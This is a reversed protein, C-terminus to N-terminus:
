LLVEKGIGFLYLYSEKVPLGTIREIAQKYIAIQIQYREKIKSITNETVYDTKYDLLVIKGQEYFFCDIMGHVLIKEKLDATKYEPYIDQPLLSLTFTKEKEIREAQRLRLALPSSFFTLIKNVSVSKMEQETLIGLSVFNKMEQIVKNRDYTEKFNLQEMVTHLATGKESATLSRDEKIFAPSKLDSEINEFSITEVVEQEQQFHRKIESISLNTPLNSAIEYPYRWHLRQFVEQKVDSYNPSSDWNELSNAITNELTKQEKKEMTIEHYPIIEVKWQSCHDFLGNKQNLQIEGVKDSILEGDRHRSVAPVIWDLYCSAKLMSYHPLEIEKENTNLAWRSLSKELGKVSGTLILKEKARTLAVYLVRLEESLNEKAIKKSLIARAITNYTVRNEYDVFTTGFGLDQHLLVPKMLDKKNLKKGLGSVFVIPFELGKSKHISMVKVLNANESLIKASGMDTDNKQIKEIYRVFHFLGRLSTNEYQIAKDLLSRLNAQRINGGAMVGVYDLYGTEEYLLWLLEDIPLFVAKERWREIDSYFRMLKESVPNKKELELYALICDYFTEKEGTLRIDLLEDSTLAYIPSRLIALVPIDQRPNDILKLLHLVTMIEVTDFFGSNTDAYVPIGFSNFKELFINSWNSPSRLLIVIDRFEAARYKQTKKDLICFGSKMLKQIKQALFTVELEMASLEELEEELNDQYESQSSFASHDLLTLEIEGGCIQNEEPQPFIAGPHLAAKEDYIIEGLDRTMLQSFLFNIGYLINARSRFNQHLDIKMEECKEESYPLYTNYKEMFIEPKALRFRYISQKVDGVMFRNHSGSTKRSVVSLIMEQVLNSDQYEDTLIEEFRNQLLLAAKSPIPTKETSGKELLVQLCYHELDNFDALMREKKVAQFRRGFEKVLSGLASLVPYLDILDEKLQQPSKFFLKEKLDTLGKKVMERLAKIKEIANEDSTKKKRGLIMFKLQKLAIYFQDLSQIQSLEELLSLDSLIADEYESIQYTHVIQLTKKALEKLGNLEFFIEEQMMRGWYTEELPLQEPLCFRETMKTVWQDPFPSSQVFSHIALVLERLKMDGTNEGYSEVLSLFADNEGSAYLEEFLDAILESKLLNIEAEDAIRFAPDIDLQHYNERVVDLCFSHITTIKARNLLTLQKQLLENHPFEEIKKELASGIRERMEAAAASTFTVVLLKDIDVPTKEETIMRIIREVLVATKGSGAAAAVLLDCQHTKIAQKQEKTWTQGM